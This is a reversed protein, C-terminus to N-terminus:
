CPPFYKSLMFLQFLLFFVYLRVDYGMNRLTATINRYGTTPPLSPLLEELADRIEVITNLPEGRRRRLGMRQRKKKLANISHWFLINIFILVPGVHLNYM